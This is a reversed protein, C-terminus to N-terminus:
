GHSASGTAKAIARVANRMCRRYEDETPREADKEVDQAQMNAHLATLAALLDPAAAMLRANAMQEAHNMGLAHGIGRPGPHAVIGGVHGQSVGWPGPTHQASM